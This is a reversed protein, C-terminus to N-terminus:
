CIFVEFVQLSRSWPGATFQVASRSTTLNDRKGGLHPSHTPPLIRLSIKRGPGQATLDLTWKRNEEAGKCSDSPNVCTVYIIAKINETAKTSSAEEATTKNGVNKQLVAITM